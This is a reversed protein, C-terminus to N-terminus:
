VFHPDRFALRPQERDKPAYLRKAQLVTEALDDDQESDDRKRKGLAQSAQERKPYTRGSELLDIIHNIVAQPDFGLPEAISALSQLCIDPFLATVEQACLEQTYQHNEEVDSDDSTEMDVAM